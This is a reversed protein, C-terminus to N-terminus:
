SVKTTAPVTNQHKKTSVRSRSNKIWGVKTKTKVKPINRLPIIGSGHKRRGYDRVLNRIGIAVMALGPNLRGGTHRQRIQRRQRQKKAM